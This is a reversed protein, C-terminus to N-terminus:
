RITIEDIVDIVGKTHIIIELAEKKILYNAVNGTLRAIGNTVSVHIRNEDILMNRRFANKIGIEVESDVIVQLLNVTLKNNVDVVGIVNGAIQQAAYKEWYSSVTGSLSVMGTVTEITIDNSTIRNDLFLMEAVNETIEDDAPVPVRPPFEIELYNEVNNVGAVWMTDREATLKATFHPVTGKLQVTGDQVDVHIGNANVSDDWTLQDIIDQKKLEEVLPTM